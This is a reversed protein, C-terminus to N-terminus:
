DPRIERLGVSNRSLYVRRPNRTEVRKRPNDGGQPRKPHCVCLLTHFEPLGSRAWRSDAQSTRGRRRYQDSAIGRERERGGEGDQESEREREGEEPFVSATTHWCLQWVLASTTCKEASRKRDVRQRLYGGRTGECGGKTVRRRKGSEKGRKGETRIKSGERNQSSQLKQRGRATRRIKTKKEQSLTKRQDGDKGSISGMKRKREWSVPKRRHRKGRSNREM